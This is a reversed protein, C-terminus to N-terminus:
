ANTAKRGSVLMFLGASPFVRRILFRPWLLRAASLIMGKHRQGAQGELLDGHTLVTKVDLDVAGPFLGPVELRSYAKTGPSELHNAYIDDLSRMPKGVILAYRLWLMFGIVSHKHYVMVRFDGGPRLVRLIERAAKATDPSHHIVGWSYVLDFTNDQFTLNEADGVALVSRLNSAALRMTTHQIARDTLDIGSLQAGAEAFRQHDAGLGVGIELVRKAKWSSFDAFPVIYPELVYRAQAQAEYGARDAQGLYLAEGCSADDWFNHVRQKQEEM